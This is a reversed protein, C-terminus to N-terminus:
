SRWLNELKFDAPESFSGTYRCLFGHAWFAGRDAEGYFIHCDDSAMPVTFSFQISSKSNCPRDSYRARDLEVPDDEATCGGALCFHHTIDPAPFDKSFFSAHPNEPQDRIRVLWEAFREGSIAHRKVFIRPVVKGHPDNSKDRIIREYINLTNPNV